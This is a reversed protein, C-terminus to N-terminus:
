ARTAEALLKCLKEQNVSGYVNEGIRVYPPREKSQADKCGGICSVGEIECSGLVAPDLFENYLLLAAGGQVFCATGVCIQVRVKDKKSM